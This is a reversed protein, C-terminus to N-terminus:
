TRCAKPSRGSEIETFSKMAHSSPAVETREMARCRKICQMTKQASNTWSLETRALHRTAQEMAQRRAPNALLNQLATALELVNGPAVLIGQVGDRIVEPFGGTRSAVIAKGFAVATM